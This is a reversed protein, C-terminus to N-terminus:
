RQVDTISESKSNAAQILRILWMRCTELKKLILEDISKREFTEDLQGQVHGSSPM